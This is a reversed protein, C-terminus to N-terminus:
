PSGSVFAVAQGAAMALAVVAIPPANVRVLLVLAGGIIAIDIPVVVAGTWVPAYLAALLIGVVVANTGSLARRFRISGRLDDWFPLAAFILLFSPLFIAGLAISAGLWGNPPVASAAGLYAAFTFLPGPLAQAAGYGALFQSQTVWGPAVVTADLLPLVLHGGGFVLSGSRYFADVLAVPQSGAGAVLLPLGLLLVVFLAFAVTGARRAVPSPEPGTARAPPPALVLLGIIAGIGILAVQSFPATWALAIAAAVIALLRRPWDPTLTRAMMFVAQAVVAVAALKLGHVWGAGAIDVRTAIVAFLTMAVASPLTFGLWATLGGIMGARRTGIAIGLQSSAPGPLSQCLAVLDGFAQEDLWRRREVYERRFYGIHAIPGGFSTLGLRLAVRFTEGPTGGAPPPAIVTRETGPAPDAMPADRRPQGGLPDSGFVTDSMTPSSSVFDDLDDVRDKLPRLPCTDPGQVDPVTPV